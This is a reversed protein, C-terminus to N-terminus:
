LHSGALVTCTCLQLIRGLPSGVTDKDGRASPVWASDSGPGCFPNPSCSSGWPEGWKACPQPIGQSPIPLEPTQQELEGTPVARPFHQRCRNPHERRNTPPILERAGFSRFCPQRAKTRLPREPDQCANPQHM